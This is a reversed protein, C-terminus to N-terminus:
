GDPDQELPADAPLELEAREDQVVRCPDELRRAARDRALPELGLEAQQSLVLLEGPHVAVGAPGRRQDALGEGQVHAEAGLRRRLERAPATQEGDRWGRRGTM